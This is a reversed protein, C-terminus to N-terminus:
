RIAKHRLAFGCPAGSIRVQQRIEYEDDHNDEMQAVREKQKDAEAIYSKLEKALRHARTLRTLQHRPELTARRPHPSRSSSACRNVVGTQITLQRTQSSM